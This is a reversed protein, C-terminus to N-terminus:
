AELGQKVRLSTSLTANHLQLVAVRLLVKVGGEDIGLMGACASTAYGLLMRLVFCVRPRHELQLVPLLGAHIMSRAELTGAWSVAGGSGISQRALETQLVALADEDPQKSFDLTRVVTSLNSEAERPDATLLLALQFLADLNTRFVDSWTKEYGGSFRSTTADSLAMQM